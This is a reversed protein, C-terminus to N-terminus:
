KGLVEMALDWMTELCIALNTLYARRLADTRAAEQRLGALARPLNVQRLYAEVAERDVSKASVGGSQRLRAAAPNTYASPLPEDSFWSDAIFRGAGSPCMVDGGWLTDIGLIATGIQEEFTMPIEEM